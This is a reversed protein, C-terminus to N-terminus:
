GAAGQRCCVATYLAPEPLLSHQEHLNNIVCSAASLVLFVVWLAGNDGGDQTEEFSWRNVACSLRLPSFLTSSPQSVRLGGGDGGAWEREKVPRNVGEMQNNQCGRNREKM